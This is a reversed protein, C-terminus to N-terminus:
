SWEVWSLLSYGGGTGSIYAFRYYYNNPVMIPISTPYGDGNSRLQTQVGDITPPDASGVQLEYRGQGAEEFVVSIYMPKGTTNQYVVDKARSGTVDSPTSFLKVISESVDSM